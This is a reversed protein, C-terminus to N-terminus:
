MEFKQLGFILLDLFQTQDSSHPALLLPHINEEEMLEHFQDCDHVGFGDMILLISGDYGHWARKARMEPVFSEKAWKMFLNTNMFGSDSRGYIVKDPTYGNDLLEQEMTERALVVMPKITSGDACIGCLMTSRKSNRERPVRVTEKQYHAPVICQVERADVYEQFGSEDINIIFEPPIGFMLAEELEQFYNDIKQPDCFVRDNEMPIGRVIKLDDIVSIMHRVTDINIKKGFRDEIFEQIKQYTAPYKQVFSDKIWHILHIKEDESLISPRGVPRPINEFSSFPHNIHYQINSRETGFFRALEYQSVNFGNEQCSYRVFLVQERESQAKNWQPTDVLGNLFSRLEEDKVMMPYVDEPGHPEKLYCIKSEMLFIFFSSM